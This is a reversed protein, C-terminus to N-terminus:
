DAPAQRARGGRRGIDAMHEKGLAEAVKQGGKKGIAAMHERDKSVSDGGRRGIRAMHERDQSVLTGGAKGATRAEEPTYEHAKGQEHASKGGLAAIERQREPDMSAFGRKQKPPPIPLPEEDM